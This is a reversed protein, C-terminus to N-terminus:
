AGFCLATFEAVTNRIDYGKKTLLKGADRDRGFSMTKKLEDVWLYANDIPMYTVNGTINAERTIQDSVICHLGNAQAELVTNPMGEYKSPFVFVDFANLLQPIDSRVGAFVVQDTINLAEVKQKVMQELQGGGVLLLRANPENKLFGVFVDLLFSHNKQESFRGIHGLVYNHNLGFEMRYKERQTESFSYDNIAFGNKLIHAENRDVCGKGFTYEAALVSPAIKVNPIKKALPKFLTHLLISTRSESSANSSRMILRKAGAKKAVWLDLAALSHESVRIVQNYRNESVVKKTARFWGIPDTSKVPVKYIKGGLKRIEETYYNEDSNVCFDMQHHSHDMARYMKMLFTEAGGTNMASIICLLREM